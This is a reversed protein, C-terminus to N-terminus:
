SSAPTKPERFVLLYEITVGLIVTGVDTGSNPHVWVHYYAGEAPNSSANAQLQDDDLINSRHLFKKTSFTKSLTLATTGFGHCRSVTNRGEHYSAPDTFTASNDIVNIGGVYDEAITGDTFNATIKSGVCIVHDYLLMLQDWGRPQHGTGTIDPDYPGNAAFVHVANIGSAGPDLTIQNDYYVLKTAFSNGLLQRNFSGPYRRKRKRKRRKRRRRRFPM